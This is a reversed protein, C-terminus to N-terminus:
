NVSAAAEGTGNADSPTISTAEAAETAMESTPEKIIIGEASAEDTAEIAAANEAPETASESPESLAASDVPAEANADSPAAEVAAEIAVSEPEVAIVSVDPTPIADALEGGEPMVLATGCAAIPDPVADTPAEPESVPAQEIQPSAAAAIDPQSPATVFDLLQQAATLIAEPKGGLEFAMKLCQMRQDHLDM